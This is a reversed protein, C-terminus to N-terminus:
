PSPSINNLPITFFYYSVIARCRAVGGLKRNFLSATISHDHHPIVIRAGNVQFMRSVM